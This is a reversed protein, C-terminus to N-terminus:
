RFVMGYILASQVYTKRIQHMPKTSSIWNEALEIQTQQWVNFLVGDFSTIEISYLIYMFVAGSKVMKLLYFVLKLLELPISFAGCM